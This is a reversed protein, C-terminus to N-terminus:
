RDHGHTWTEGILDLLQDHAVALFCVAAIAISAVVAHAAAVGLRLRGARRAAELSAGILWSTVLGGLLIWRVAGAVMENGTLAVGILVAAVPAFYFVEVPPRILARATGRASRTCWAACAIVFGLAGILALASALRLFARRRIKDLKEIAKDIARDGLDGHGYLARYAREADDLRGLAALADAVAKRAYWRDDDDGREAAAAFAALAREPLALRMWADGIWMWVAHARPYEPNAEMLATMAEAQPTEDEAGVSARQIADVQEAVERWEGDAGLKGGLAEIRARVRRLYPTPPELEAARRWLELARALQGRREALEAAEILSDDAWDGTPDREYLAEFAAQAEELKGEGILQTAARFDAGSDAWAIRAVLLTLAFALTRM